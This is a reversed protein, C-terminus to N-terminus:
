ASRGEAAAARGARRMATVTSGQLEITALRQRVTGGLLRTVPVGAVDSRASRSAYVLAVLPRGFVVPM